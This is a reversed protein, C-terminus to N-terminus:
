ISTYRWAHCIEPSPQQSSTLFANLFYIPVPLFLLRWRCTIQGASLAIWFCGQLSAAQIHSCFGFLEAAFEPRISSRRVGSTKFRGSYRIRNRSTRVDYWPFNRAVVLHKAQFNKWTISYKSGLAFIHYNPDDPQVDTRRPHKGKEFSFPIICLVRPKLYVRYQRFVRM